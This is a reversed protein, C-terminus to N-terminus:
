RARRFDFGVRRLVAEIARGPPGEKPAGPGSFHDAYLRWLPQVTPDFAGGSVNHIRACLSLLEVLEPPPNRLVGASNLNSLASTPRYLSFIDELRVIEARSADVIARATARDPHVLTITASAGLVIGRWRYVAPDIQKERAFAELTVGGLAMGSAAATIQLVRRRPVERSTAAKNVM